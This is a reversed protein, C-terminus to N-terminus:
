CAPIFRSIFRYHQRLRIEVILNSSSNDGSGLVVLNAYTRIYLDRLTQLEELTNETEKYEVM